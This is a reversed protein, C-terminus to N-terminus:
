RRAAALAVVLEEPIEAPVTDAGPGTATFLAFEAAAAAVRRQLPDPM